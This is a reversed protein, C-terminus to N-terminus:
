RIVWYPKGKITKIKLSQHKEGVDDSTNNKSTDEESDKSEEM